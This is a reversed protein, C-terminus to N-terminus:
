GIRTKQPKLENGARFRLPYDLATKLTRNERGTRNGVLNRLSFFEGQHRPVVGGLHFLQLLFYKLGIAKRFSFASLLPRDNGVLRVASPFISCETARSRQQKVASRPRFGSLLDLLDFFDDVVVLGSFDLM